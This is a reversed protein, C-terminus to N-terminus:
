FKEKIYNVIKELHIGRSGKVLLWRLEAPLTTLAAIAAEPDPFARFAAAPLGQSLAGEGIESAHEGVAVLYDIKEEAARRGVQRHGERTYDGMELMEGLIAMAKGGSKLEALTHLAAMASSPNSNYCDDILRRGERLEVMQMRSAAPKFEQLAGKATALDVGHGLGVALAALVNSLNHPGPLKLSLEAEAQGTQVRLTLPREGVMEARLVEGWVASGPTGYGVRKGSVPLAAVRPDALNVLATAKPSLAQFIEGEAQAVGDLDVLKELHELGINTLLGTTPDAIRTLRALEGFDNMGMEVIAAQHSPDLQFLTKPVGILNNLNGETALVRYRTSLVARTLEKATTKGNSGAIGVVPISFKMRWAHALDGLATLTDPVVLCPLSSKLGAAHSEDVVLAAAGRAEAQSIFEHGDRAGILCFFIEGAKLHRTDTSVNSFDADLGNLEAGM